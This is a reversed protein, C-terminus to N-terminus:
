IAVNASCNFLLCVFRLMICSFIIAIKLFVPLNVPSLRILTSLAAMKLRSSLLLSHVLALSRELLLALLFLVRHSSLHHDFALPPSVLRQRHKRLTQKPDILDPRPHNKISQLSCFHFACRRATSFRAPSLRRLSSLTVNSLTAFSVM